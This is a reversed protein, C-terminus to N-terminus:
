SRAAPARQDPSLARRFREGELVMGAWRSLDRASARDVEWGLGVLTARLRRLLVREEHLPHTRGPGQGPLIWVEGVEWEPPRYSAREDAVVAPAPAAAASTAGRRQRGLV